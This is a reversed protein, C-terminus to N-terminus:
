GTTPTTSLLAPGVPDDQLAGIVALVDHELFSLAQAYRQGQPLLQDRDVIGSIGEMDVSIWAIM